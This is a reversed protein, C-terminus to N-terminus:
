NNYLSSFSNLGVLFDRKLQLPIEKFDILLRNRKIAILGAEVTNYDKKLMEKLYEVDDYCKM